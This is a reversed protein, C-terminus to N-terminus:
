DALFRTEILELAKELASGFLEEEDPPIDSLVHDVVNTGDPPRGVGIRIRNFDATGTIDIISRLGNHGGHGGGSKYRCEGLPIDIDDHIVLMNEPSLLGIHDIARAVPGGSRNMFTMPKLGWWGVGWTFANILPSQFVVCSEMVKSEELLLDMALFGANHRTYTYRPGPNGLGAILKEVM